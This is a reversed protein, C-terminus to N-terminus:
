SQWGTRRQCLSKWPRAPDESTTGGAGEERGGTCCVKASLSWASSCLPLWLVCAWQIGAIEMTPAAWVPGRPLASLSANAAAVWLVQLACDAAGGQQLRSM